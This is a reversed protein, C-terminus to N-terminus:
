VLPPEVSDLHLVAGPPTPAPDGEVTADTTAKRNKFSVQYQIKIMIDQHLIDSPSLGGSTNFWEDALIRLGYYPAGLGSSNTSLWTARSVPQLPATGIGDTYIPRLLNPFFKYYITRGPYLHRAKIGLNEADAETTADSLSVGDKDNWATITVYNPLQRPDINGAVALKGVGINSPTQNLTLAVTVADIRFFEYLGCFATFDGSSIQNGRYQTHFGQRFQVTNHQQGVLSFNEGSMVIHDDALFVQQTSSGVRKHIKVSANQRRAATTYKSTRKYAKRKGYKRKGYKRKSAKYKRPM